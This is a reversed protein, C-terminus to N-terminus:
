NQVQQNVRCGLHKLHKQANKYASKEYKESKINVKCTLSSLKLHIFYSIEADNCMDVM